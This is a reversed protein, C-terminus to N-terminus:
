IGHAERYARELPTRKAYHEKRANLYWAERQESLHLLHCVEPEVRVAGELHLLRDDSWLANHSGEYRMQGRHQFIRPVWVQRGAVNIQLAYHRGKELVLMLGVLREDADLHVYWDGEQGILYANRKEMETGWARYPGVVTKPPEVWEAGYSLAVMRTADTSYPVGNYFPFTAFAGDVVVLRDVQGRLSELCGPLMREENYVIVCGIIM